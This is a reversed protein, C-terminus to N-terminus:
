RHMYTQSAHLCAHVCAHMPTHMNHIYHTCAPSTTHTCLSTAHRSTGHHFTIYVHTYVHMHTYIRRTASHTLCLYVCANPSHVRAHMCTHMFSSTHMFAHMHLSYAMYRHMHAHAYAHMRAHMCIFATRSNICEHTGRVCAFMHAFFHAVDMCAHM